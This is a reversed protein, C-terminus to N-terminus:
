REEWRRRFARLETDSYFHRAYRASYVTDLISAPVRIRERAERYSGRYAHDEGANAHPVAAPPERLGYFAGVAEPLRAFSEQRILLLRADEGEYIQWGRERDFPEAFVDIGLNAKVNRDFWADLEWWRAGSLWGSELPERDMLRALASDMDMAQRNERASFFAGSLRQSVPERTASIVHVKRPPVCGAVAARRRLHQHVAWRENVRGREWAANVMFARARADREWSEAPRRSCLQHNTGRVDARLGLGQVLELLTYTGTKPITLVLHLDDLVPEGGALVSLRRLREALAHRVRLAAPPRPHVPETM